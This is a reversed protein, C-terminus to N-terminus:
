NQCPNFRHLKGRADKATFRWNINAAASKRDSVCAEVAKKMNDQDGNCGRPCSRASVSFEIEAMGDALEPCSEGM